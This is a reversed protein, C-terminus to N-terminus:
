LKYCSIVATMNLNNEINERSERSERKCYNANDKIFKCSKVKKLHSKSQIHVNAIQNSM